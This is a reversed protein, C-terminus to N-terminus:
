AVAVADETSDATEAAVPQVLAIDIEITVEKGVLWGGTELGVNWTLGWQERDIKTRASFAARRGGQLNAVIGHFETALAVPRTVGRITLDGHLVGETEGTPEIRTSRFTLHPYKEADLFDASRLHADRAEQGTDISAREPHEEDAEVIAEEITMSGRVTTVMMHKVALTVSSHAPDLQWTM